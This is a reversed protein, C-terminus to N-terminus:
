PVGTISRETDHAISVALSCHELCEVMPQAQKTAAPESM